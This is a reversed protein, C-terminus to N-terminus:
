VTQRYNKAQINFMEAYKGNLAMLEDHTGEEIIEGSDMMYIRDAMRTTSLRHSIFIITRDFAANMMLQNLEYESDPDLAASPEDMIIFEYNNVFTRALAIKQQEGGSLIVGDEDFERTLVSDIGKPLSDLKNDFKVKKLADFVSQRQQESTCYDMLVNQCIPLAFLRTDQFATGFKARYSDVTIYEAKKGNLLLEGSEQQYLRMILKILTSKGAGNYGVLAIKENRKIEMNINKLAYVKACPYKFSLNKLKLSEFRESLVKADKEQKISSEKSMFNIFKDMYLAIEKFRDFWRLFGYVRQSITGAAEQVAVMGSITLTHSVVIRYVLVLTFVIDWLVSDTLVQVLTIAFNKAIRKKMIVKARDMDKEYRHLILDVVNTLRLEKAVADLFFLRDTYGIRRWIKNAEVENDYNVRTHILDTAFTIAVYVVILIIAFLDMTAVIGLVSIITVISVFINVVNGVAELSTGAGRVISWTYDDYFDPNDYVSLDLTLAKEYISRTVKETFKNTTRPIYVRTTYVSWVDKLVTIGLVAFFVPLIGIFDTNGEIVFKEVTGLFEKTFYINILSPLMSCILADLATVFIYSPAKKMVNGIAFLNNKVYHRINKMREKKKKM